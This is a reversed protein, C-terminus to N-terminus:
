KIIKNKVRRLVRKLMSQKHIYKKVLKNFERNELYKFFKDRNRHMQVSKTMSPNYKIAEHFDCETRETKQKIQEFLRKGKESNIIVLSTGKNDDMQPLVNEIGWFDALTIDSIRNEKKFSCNYCSDRLVLNSLFAQIFLDKYHSQNYTFNNELNIKVFYNRWGNTKDRHNIDKIKNNQNLKKQYELYKDHVKPSPVGHCIIDQTYLNEYEKQLYSKLGEIQCPTGTFLVQRGNELYEKVKKYTDGISSQMYKSKRIKEIDKKNEICIHKARFNEDFAVGFVVGQHEIIEEALLSFVGGSSSEKRIEDQKNKVAYAIPINEVKKKQLIPCVKECLNCKICKDKNIVPYKFGKEDEKMEIAQVPCINYCASCGCCEEKNKIDIM